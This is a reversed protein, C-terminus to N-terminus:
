DSKGANGSKVDDTEGFILNYPTGLAAAIKEALEPPMVYRPHGQLLHRLRDPRIGVQRALWVQSSGRANLCDKIKDAWPQPKYEPPM